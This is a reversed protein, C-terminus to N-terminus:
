YLNVGTGVVVTKAGQTCVIGTGTAAKATVTFAGTTLNIIVWYGFLPLILNINATIAGTLTIVPCQFQDATAVVDVGGAMNISVQDWRWPAQDGRVINADIRIGNAM